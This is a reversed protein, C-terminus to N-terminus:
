QCHGQIVRFTLKATQLRELKWVKHLLVFKSVHRTARDRQSLQAKQETLKFKHNIRTISYTLKDEDAKHVLSAHHNVKDFAKSLDTHRRNLTNSKKFLRRVPINCSKLGNRESSILPYHDAILESKIYITLRHLKLALM